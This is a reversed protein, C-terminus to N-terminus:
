KACRLDARQQKGELATNYVDLIKETMATPSYLLANQLCSDHMANRRVHNELLEIVAATFAEKDAPIVVGDVGPQVTESAGGEKVVVCPTGAARAEAIVLGQTETSSPFVFIDAAAYIPDLKCRPLPGHFLIQSAEERGQVRRQCDELHPGGGVILFYATKFKAIVQHFADLALELNKEQAIRGVYLLLPADQPINLKSRAAMCAEETIDKPDPLPVATPIVTIPSEVHYRLLSQEAVHSPVIVQACRNYYEPIWWELLGDVAQQPLFVLYHGYHNYLTHYTSILPKNQQKAIRSALLGLFFPTHSHIIDPSIRALDKELKPLWPYSLPYNPNFPTRYSPVRLVFHSGDDYEPYNPAVVVVRHKKLRLEDILTRVSASVGNQVPEFSESFM